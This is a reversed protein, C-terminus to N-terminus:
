EIALLIETVLDKPLASVPTNLYIEVAPVPRLTEGCDKLWTGFLFSYAKHLESYPGRHVLVAYRGGPLDRHEMGNPVAVGDDLVVGALSILQDEAVVDPDDFYVAAMAHHPVPGNTTLEATLRGFTANIDRYSGRHIFGAIRASNRTELRVEYMSGEMNDTTDAMNSCGGNARYHLPSLGYSEGFARSFARGSTYGARTAIDTIPTATEVLERAARGLRLRHVTQWVTEGIMERYIRHWHFRSLCAVDSLEDLNLDGDLHDRIHILVRDIRDRYDTRLQSPEM